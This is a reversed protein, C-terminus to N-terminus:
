LAVVVGFLSRELSLSGFLFLSRGPSSGPLLVPLFRVQPVVEVSWDRCAVIDWM